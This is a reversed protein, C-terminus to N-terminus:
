RKNCFEEALTALSDECGSMTAFTEIGSLAMPTTRGETATGCDETYSGVGDVTRENKKESEVNEEAVSASGIAEEPLEKSSTRIRAGAEYLREDLNEALRTM